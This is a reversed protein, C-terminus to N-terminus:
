ESDEETKECNNEIDYELNCEEDENEENEEENEGNKEKAAQILENIKEPNSYRTVIPAITFFGTGDKYFTLHPNVFAVMIGGEFSKRIFARLQTDFPDESFPAHIYAYIKEYNFEKVMENWEAIQKKESDDIKQGSDIIAVCINGCMGAFYVNPVFSPTSEMNSYRVLRNIQDKRTELYIFVNDDTTSIIASNASFFLVSDPIVSNWSDSDDLKKCNQLIALINAISSEITSPSHM